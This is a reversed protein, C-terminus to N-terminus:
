KLYNGSQSLSYITVKTASIFTSMFTWALFKIKKSQFSACKLVRKLNWSQFADANSYCKIYVIQFRRLMSVFHFLKGYKEVSFSKIDYILHFIHKAYLKVRSEYFKKMSEQSKDILVAFWFKNNISARYCFLSPLLFIVGKKKIATYMWLVCVHPTFCIVGLKKNLM